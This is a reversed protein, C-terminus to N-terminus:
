RRAVHIVFNSFFVILNDILRLSSCQDVHFELIKLKLKLKTYVSWNWLIIAFISTMVKECWRIKKGCGNPLKETIRSLYRSMQKGILIILGFVNKKTRLKTLFGLLDPTTANFYSSRAQKETFLITLVRSQKSFMPCFPIRIYTSYFVNEVNLGLRATQSYTYVHFDSYMKETETRTKLLFFTVQYM